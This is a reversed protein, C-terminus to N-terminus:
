FNSLRVITIFVKSFASNSKSVDVHVTSPNQNGRRFHRCFLSCSVKNGSRARSPQVKHRALRKSLNRPVRSIERRVACANGELSGFSKRSLLYILKERNGPHCDFGSYQISFRHLRHLLITPPPILNVNGGIRIKLLSLHQTM